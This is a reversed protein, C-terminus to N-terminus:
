IRWAALFWFLFFSLFFSVCLLVLSYSIYFSIHFFFIFYFSPTLLFLFRLFWSLFLDEELCGPAMQSSSAGAGGRDGPPYIPEM